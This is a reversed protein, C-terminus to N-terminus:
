EKTKFVLLYPLSPQHNENIFNRYEGKNFWIWYTKNPKLKVKAVCTRKNIYQPMGNLEPFSEKTEYVWSMAKTNMDQSFIVKIETLNPDVNQEGCQPVTEVVVPPPSLKKDINQADVSFCFVFSFLFTKLIIRSM